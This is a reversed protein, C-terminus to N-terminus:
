LNGVGGRGRTFLGAAAAKLGEDSDALRWMRGGEDSRTLPKLVGPQDNGGSLFSSAALFGVLFAVVGGERLTRGARPWDLNKRWGRQQALPKRMGPQDM